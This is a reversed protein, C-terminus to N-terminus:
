TTTYRFKLETDTVEIGVVDYVTSGDTRQIKIDLDKPLNEIIMHLTSTKCAM